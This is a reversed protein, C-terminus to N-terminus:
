SSQLMHSGGLGFILGADGTNAPPNKVVSGCPLRLFSIKLPLAGVGQGMRRLSTLWIELQLHPSCLKARLWCPCGEMWISLPQSGQPINAEWSSPFIRDIAPMTYCRGTFCSEGFHTGFINQLTLMRGDFWNSFCLILSLEINEWTHTKSDNNNYIMVRWASFVADKLRILGTFVKRTFIVESSLHEMYCM